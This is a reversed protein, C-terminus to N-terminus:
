DPASRGATIYPFDFTAVTIGRAALEQGAKVVFSSTQGGGAGHAM